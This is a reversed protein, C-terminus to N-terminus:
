EPSLGLERRLWDRAEDVDGFVKSPFPNSFILNIGYFLTRQIVNDLVIAQVLRERTLAAHEKMHGILLRRQEPSFGKAGRSDLLLGFREGRGLWGNMKVLFERLAADSAAGTWRVTVLPWKAEDIPVLM